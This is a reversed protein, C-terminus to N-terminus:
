GRGLAQAVRQGSRVAGEMYGQWEGGTHEGAFWVRGV